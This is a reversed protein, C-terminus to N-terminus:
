ELGLDITDAEQVTELPEADINQFLEDLAFFDTEEAVPIEMGGETEPLVEKIDEAVAEEPAEGFLGLLEAIDDAESVTEESEVAGFDMLEEFNANEESKSFEEMSSITVPEEYLSYDGVESRRDKDVQAFERSLLSDMDFEEPTDFINYMEEELAEDPEFFDGFDETKQGCNPCYELGDEIETGCHKCVAM